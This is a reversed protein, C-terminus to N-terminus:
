IEQSNYDENYDNNYDEDVLEIFLFGISQTPKTKLILQRFEQHRDGPVQAFSGFSNGMIFFSTKLATLYDFVVGMEGEGMEGTGMQTGANDPSLFDADLEPELYNAIIEYTNGGPILGGMEGTGMETLGMQAFQSSVLTNPDIVDFKINNPETGGMESDGLESVGMQAPVEAPQPFRNEYVRVDFNASRLQRELYLHHQRAKITGPHNMKRIIAAKRDTLLVKENVILGLRDEWRAADEDTFLDNDPIISNMVSLSDALLQEESVALANHIKNLVGGVPVRFARGKPYLSRTLNIISNFM